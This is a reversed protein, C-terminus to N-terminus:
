LPVGGAVMWPGGLEFRLGATDARDIIEKRAIDRRRDPVVFLVLPRMVAALGAWVM